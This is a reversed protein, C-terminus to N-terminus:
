GFVVEYGRRFRAVVHPPLITVGDIPTTQSTFEAIAASKAAMVADDLPVRRALDWRVRPDGPSAWHWMWVPYELLRAGTAACAAAAARGAAEHDPHGDGRWTALCVRGPSLMATLTATLAAEDIGGDPHGLRRVTFRGGLAALAAVTEAPRLRALDRSIGAHPHSAEGDTVAVIDAHGIRALLGGAGLVEDDPHPAVVLPHGLDAPDLVPWAGVADWGAWVAEGTGDGEIVTVV